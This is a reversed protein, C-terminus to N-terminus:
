ILEIKQLYKVTTKRHEAGGHRYIRVFIDLPLKKGSFRSYFQEVRIIKGFQGQPFHKDWYVQGIREAGIVKVTDGVKPQYKKEM